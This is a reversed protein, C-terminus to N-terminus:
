NPRSQTTKSEGERNEWQILCFCIQSINAALRTPYPKAQTQNGNRGYKLWRGRASIRVKV